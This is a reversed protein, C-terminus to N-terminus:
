RSNRRQDCIKCDIEETEEKLKMMMKIRNKTTLDNVKSDDQRIRAEQEEELRSRQQEMEMEESERQSRQKEEMEHEQIKRKEGIQIHETLQQQLKKVSKQLEANVRNSHDMSVEPSNVDSESVENDVSAQMSEM